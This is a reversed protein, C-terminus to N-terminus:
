FEKYLQRHLYSHLFAIGSISIESDSLIVFSIFLFPREFSRGKLIYPTLYNGGEATAGVMVAVMGATVAVVIIHLGIIVGATHRAIIYGAIVRAITFPVNMFRLM